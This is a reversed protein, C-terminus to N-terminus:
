NRVEPNTRQKLMTKIMKALHREKSISEEENMNMIEGVRAAYEYLTEVPLGQLIRIYNTPNSECIVIRLLFVVSCNIAKEVQKASIGRICNRSRQGNKKLSTM